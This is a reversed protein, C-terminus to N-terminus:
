YQIFRGIKLAMCYYYFFQILNNILILKLLYIKLILLNITIKITFLIYLRSFDAEKFLIFTYKPWYYILSDSFYINIKYIKDFNAVL